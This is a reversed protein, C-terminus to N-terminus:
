IAWWPAVRDRAATLSLLGCQCEVVALLYLAALIIFLVAGARAM